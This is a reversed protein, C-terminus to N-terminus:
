NKNGYQNIGFFAMVEDNDIGEDEEGVLILDGDPYLLGFYGHAPTSVFFLKHNNKNHLLKIDDKREVYDHIQPNEDSLLSNFKEFIDM